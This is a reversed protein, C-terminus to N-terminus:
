RKTHARAIAKKASQGFVYVLLGFGSLVVIYPGFAALLKAWLPGDFRKVRQFQALFISGVFVVLVLLLLLIGVFLLLSPTKRSEYIRRFGDTENRVTDPFVFNKQRAEVENMWTERESELSM